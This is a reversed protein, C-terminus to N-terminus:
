GSGTDRVRVRVTARVTVRVRVRVTVTVRVRVRGFGLGLGLESGSGLELGLGPRPATGPGWASATRGQSTRPRRHCRRTPRPGCCPAGRAGAKARHNSSPHPAAAWLLARRTEHGTGWLWEAGTGSRQTAAREGRLFAKLELTGLAEDPVLVTVCELLASTHPLASM